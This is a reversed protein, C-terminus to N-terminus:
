ESNSHHPWFYLGESSTHMSSRMTDFCNSIRYESEVFSGIDRQCQQGQSAIRAVLPHAAKQGEWPHALTLISINNDIRINNMDHLKANTGQLCLM